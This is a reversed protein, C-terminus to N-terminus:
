LNAHSCMKRHGRKAPQVVAFKRRYYQQRCIAAIMDLEEPSELSHRGSEAMDIPDRSNARDEKPNMEISESDDDDDDDDDDSTQLVSDGAMSSSLYASGIHLGSLMGIRDMEILIFEALGILAASASYIALHIIPKLEAFPLSVAIAVIFGARIGLRKNKTKGRPGAHHLIGM